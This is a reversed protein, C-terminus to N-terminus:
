KAEFSTAAVRELISGSLAAEATDHCLVPFVLRESWQYIRFIEFVNHM